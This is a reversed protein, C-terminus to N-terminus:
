KTGGYSMNQEEILEKVRSKAGRLERYAILLSIASSVDDWDMAIITSENGIKQILAVGHEMHENDVWAVDISM